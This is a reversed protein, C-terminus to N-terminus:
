YKHKFLEKEWVEKQQDPLEDFNWLFALYAYRLFGNKVEEVTHFPDHENFDMLVVNGRVPKVSIQNTSDGEINGSVVLQGGGDEYKEETNLYILIGCFRGQNKGDRHKEIHDGDKYLTIADAFILNDFNEKIEPYFRRINKAVLTTIEKTYAQFNPLTHWRQSIHLGEDKARQLQKPREEGFILMPWEPDNHKGVVSMTYHWYKDVPPISCIRDAVKEFQIRDEDTEFFEDISFVIYGDKYFKEFDIM